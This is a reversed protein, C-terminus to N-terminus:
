GAQKCYCDAPNASSCAATTSGNTLCTTKSGPCCPVTTSCAQNATPCYCTCDATSTSNCATM